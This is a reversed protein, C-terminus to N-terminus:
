WEKMMTHQEQKVLWIIIIHFYTIEYYVGSTDLKSLDFENSYITTINPMKGFMEIATTVNKIIQMIANDIIEILYKKIVKCLFANNLVSKLMINIVYNKM